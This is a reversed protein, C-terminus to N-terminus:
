NGTSLPVSRLIDADNAEAASNLLYLRHQLDTLFKELLAQNQISMRGVAGRNIAAAEQKVKATLERIM